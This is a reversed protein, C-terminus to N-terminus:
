ELDITVVEGFDELSGGFLEPDGVVMIVAEQPHLEERAVRQIEEATIQQLNDLYREYYDPELGLLSVRASRQAIAAASDYRFLSQNLITEQALSLEAPDVPQSQLREIEELILSIVQHTAQAPSISYAVFTGPYEFGQTVVSATAYALGRRTRIEEFLRSTFGGGGLIHNAVDLDNYAPSYALVAPHGIVVVSQSMQKPALYVTGDPEEDLPPIPPPPNVEVRWDGLLQELRALMEDSDFDGAVAIATNAPGYYSRHFEVIDERTIANISELTPYAGTPHGEAVRYFFERLALQVPDDVVRRIAELQRQRRVELRDPDFRPQVLVDRWLPMVEDLTSSLTDFGVSALYTDASAEVSAALQELRIDLEAPSLEGAGGERLMAATLAALGVKGEPDYLAPAEVYAVGQVLPLTRDELLFVTIGNSLREQRAEPPEYDIPPPQLELPHPWEDPAPQALAQGAVLLLALLLLSPRGLRRRRIAEYRSRKTGPVSVETARM